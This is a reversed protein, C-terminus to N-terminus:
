RDLCSRVTEILDDVAAEGDRVALECQLVCVPPLDGPPPSLKVADKETTIVHEAGFDRVAKRLREWDRPEYRHHDPFILPQVEYGLRRLSCEFSEPNGLGSLAIVRSGPPPSGSGSLPRMEGPRHETVVIPLGPATRELWGLLEAVREDSAL